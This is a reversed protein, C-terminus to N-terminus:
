AWSEWGRRDSPRVDAPPSVKAPAVSTASPRLVRPAAAEEEVLLRQQRAQAFAERRAEADFSSQTQSQGPQQRPPLESELQRLMVGRDAMSDQLNSWGSTLAMLDGGELRARVEVVGREHSIELRLRTQADPQLQVEVRDGGKVKFENVAAWVDETLKSIVGARPATEMASAVGSVNFSRQVALDAALVRTMTTDASFNRSAGSDHQELSPRQGRAEALTAVAEPTKAAETRNESRLPGEEARAPGIKEAQKVPKTPEGLKTPEVSKAALEPKVAEGAKLAEDTKDAHAANGFRKEVDFALEPAKNDKLHEPKEPVGLETAARKESGARVPNEPTGTKAAVNQLPEELTVTETGDQPEMERLLEASGPSVPAAGEQKEAVVFETDSDASRISDQYAEVEKEQAVLSETSPDFFEAVVAEAAASGSSEESVFVEKALGPPPVQNNPLWVAQAWAPMEEARESRRADREELNESRSEGAVDQATEESEDSCVTEKLRELQEARVGQEASGTERRSGSQKLSEFFEQHANPKDASRRAFAQGKEFVNQRSLASPKVQTRGVQTRGLLAEFSDGAPADETSRHAPEIAIPDPRSRVPNTTAANM